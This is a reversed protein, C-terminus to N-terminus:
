LHLLVNVFTTPCKYIDRVLISCELNIYLKSVFPAGYSTASNSMVTQMYKSLEILQQSYRYILKGLHTSAM